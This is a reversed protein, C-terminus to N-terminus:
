SFKQEEIVRQTESRRILHFKNLKTLHSTLITDVTGIDLLSNDFKHSVIAFSLGKPYEAALEGAVKAAWEEILATTNFPEANVM